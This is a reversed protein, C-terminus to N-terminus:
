LLWISMFDVRNCESSNCFGADYGDNSRNILEKSSPLICILFGITCAVGKHRDKLGCM